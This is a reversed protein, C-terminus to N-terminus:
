IQPNQESGLLRENQQRAAAQSFVHRCVEPKERPVDNTVNQNAQTVSLRSGEKPQSSSVFSGESVQMCMTTISNYLSLLQGRHTLSHTIVTAVNETHSFAICKANGNATYCPPQIISILTILKM